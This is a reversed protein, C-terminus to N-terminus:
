SSLHICVAKNKAKEQPFCNKPLYVTCERCQFENENKFLEPLLIKDCQNFIVKGIIDLYNKFILFPSCVVEYYLAGYNNKSYPRQRAPGFQVHVFM